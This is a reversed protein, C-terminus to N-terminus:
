WLRFIGLTMRLLALVRATQRGLALHHSIDSFWGRPTLWSRQTTALLAMLQGRRRWLGTFAGIAAALIAVPGFDIPGSGVESPPAGDSSAIAQEGALAIAPVVQGPIPMEDISPWRGWPDVDFVALLGVSDDDSEALGDRSALAGRPFSARGASTTSGPQPATDLNPLPLEDTDPWGGLSANVTSRFAQQANPDPMPPLRRGPWQDWPDVLV